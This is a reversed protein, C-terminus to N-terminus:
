VITNVTPMSLGTLKNLAKIMAATESIQVNHNRLSLTGGLIKTVKFMATKSLAPKHYSRRM